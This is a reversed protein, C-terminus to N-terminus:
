HGRAAVRESEQQQQECQEMLKLVNAWVRRGRKDSYRDPNRVITADTRLEYPGNAEANLVVRSARRMIEQMLAVDAEIRDTPAEILAADHVTGCLKIGRQHAWICAVRLIDAGSAQIPFNGISRTNFETIGTRCTWGLPTWMRGSDLAYAVWDELWGWYRNFLGKHQGLMEHAMFTSIGLRMALTQAQMQYQAGLCVTKYLDHIEAHTKKTATPPAEDFKKAFEIYANGTAYLDLMPKCESLAAAIQFEMSSWDLYAVAMGPAPKILSRLWVAPSFIWFKAKPHTRATKAQFPWLVTRNRGDGGVALGIKRMKNRAHRLQKLDELEPYAKAMSEFTKTRLDLKGTDKLPWDIGRRQLYAEFNAHNFHWDGDAGKVYVGYHKNIEPVLADRIFSWVKKNQLRPFIEMDVPIGRHEMVASVGVFEGWHLCTELDTHPLLKPLLMELAVVDSTCYDLIKEREEASFPWGQKIRERMSDKQKAGISDIGFYALAGLLGKRDPVVRGNVLARFAPSLDLIKAPLPWGLSLHCSSEATAAFCCFLAKPDLRYPPASSLQDRWLRLQMGSIIEKACLCVVDPREGPKSIYEFDVLWVQDFPLALDNM